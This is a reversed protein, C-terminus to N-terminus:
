SEQPYYNRQQKDQRKGNWDETNEAKQNATSKTCIPYHPGWRCEEEAPKNSQPKKLVLCSPIAALRPPLKKEPEEMQIVTPARTPPIPWSARANFLNTFAPVTISWPTDERNQPATTTVPAEPQQKGQPNKCRPASPGEEEQPKETPYLIGEFKGQALNYVTVPTLTAASKAMPMQTTVMTNVVTHKPEAPLTSNMPLTPNAPM